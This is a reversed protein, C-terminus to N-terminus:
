RNREPPNNMEKRLKRYILVYMATFCATGGIVNSVPEAAFIGQLPSAGFLPFLRPFLITLPVVIIVKRLLSFFIAHSKMGLSRFTTQGGYQLAQFVFAFFYIHLLPVATEVVGADSTFIRIFAAPFLTILGWATLSYVFAAACMLWISELTRGHRGAGYNYSVVPSSGETIAGTPVDFVQRVSSLIAYISIYLDGGYISLMRNCVITVLSNTFHTIFMSIGLLIIKGSQARDPHLLRTKKIKLDARGGTLFRICFVASLFQSIVTAIAAGRVGMGLAFIFVPDLIMNTIAGIFVVTMGTSTFGQANIFPTMGSSIMAFVTGLLYISLYDSAYEITVDSAGFLYLMPRMCLLGAVTVAISTGLLLSFSTNMIQEAKERDGRGLEMSCLPGGGHGYLAAFALIIIVVPFCLGVGALADAGEGPIRGIFVRDVINYLLHLLQAALMPVASFFINQKINGNEFDIQKM